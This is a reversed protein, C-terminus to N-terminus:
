KSRRPARWSTITRSPLGMVASSSGRDPAEAFARHFQRMDSRTVNDTTLVSIVAPMVREALTAFDPYGAPAAVTQAEAPPPAAPSLREANGQPTVGLGGTLVMGLAMAALAIAAVTTMQFRRTTDM